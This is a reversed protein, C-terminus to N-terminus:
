LVSRDAQLPGVTSLSLANLFPLLPFCEMCRICLVQIAFSRVVGAVFPFVPIATKESSTTGSQLRDFTLLEGLTMQALSCAAAVDAVNQLQDALAARLRQGQGEKDAGKRLASAVRKDPDLAIMDQLHLELGMTAVQLPGRTEHSIYQVFSKRNELNVQLLIIFV